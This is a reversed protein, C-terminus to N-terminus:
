LIRAYFDDVTNVIFGLSMCNGELRVDAVVVTAKESNSRTDDRLEIALIPSGDLHMFACDTIMTYRGLQPHQVVATVCLIEILYDIDLITAKLYRRAYQECLEALMEENDHLLRDIGSVKRLSHDTITRMIM